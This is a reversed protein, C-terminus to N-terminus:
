EVSFRVRCASVFYPSTRFGCHVTSFEQFFATFLSIWADCSMNSLARSSIVNVGIQSGIRIRINQVYRLNM